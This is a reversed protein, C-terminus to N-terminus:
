RIEYVGIAAHAILHAEYRSTMRYADDSARQFDLTAETGWYQLGIV